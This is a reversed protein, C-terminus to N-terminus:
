HLLASHCNNSLGVFQRGSEVRVGNIQLECIARRLEARTYELQYHHAYYGRNQKEEGYFCFVGHVSKNAHSIFINAKIAKDIYERVVQIDSPYTVVVTAGIIDHLQWIQFGPNMQRAANVKDVIKWVDKFINGSQKDARTYIRYIPGNVSPEKSLTRVDKQLQELVREYKQRMSNLYEIANKENIFNTNTM